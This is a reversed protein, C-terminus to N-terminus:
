DALTCDKIAYVTRIYIYGQTGPSGSGNSYVSPNIERLKMQCLYTMSKFVDTPRQLKSVYDAVDETAAVFEEGGITEGRKWTMLKKSIFDMAFANSALCLGFYTFMVKKIPFM